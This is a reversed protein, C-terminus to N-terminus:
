IATANPFTGCLIAVFAVAAVVAVLVLAVLEFMVQPVGFNMPVSYPLVILKFVAITLPVGPDWATILPLATRLPTFIVEIDM